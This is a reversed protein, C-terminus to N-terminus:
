FIGELLRREAEIARAQEQRLRVIDAYANRVRAVTAEVGPAEVGPAELVVGGKAAIAELLRRAHNPLIQRARYLQKRTMHDNWKPLARAVSALFRTDGSAERRIEESAYLTKIAQVVADDKQMLLAVLREKDWVGGHKDQVRM